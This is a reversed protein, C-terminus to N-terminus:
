WIKLFPPKVPSWSQFPPQQFLPPLKKWLKTAIKVFFFSFDSINLLLFLKYVFINKETMVLFEFQSIKVLFKTVKLLCFPTLFSFSQYKPCGSFFRVKLPPLECFFHYLPPFQRFFPAQVTQLNLPNFPPPLQCSFPPTNKLPPQYGRHVSHNSHGSRKTFQNRIKNELTSNKRILSVLILSLDCSSFTFLEQIFM